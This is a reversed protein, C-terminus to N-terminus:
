TKPLWTQLVKLHPQFRPKFRWPKFKVAKFVLAGRTFVAQCPLHLAKGMKEDEFVVAALLQEKIGDQLVVLPNTGDDHEMPAEASHVGGEGSLENESM